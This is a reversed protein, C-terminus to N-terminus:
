LVPQLMREIVSNEINQKNLLKLAKSRWSTIAEKMNCIGLIELEKMSDTM